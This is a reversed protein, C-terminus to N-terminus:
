EGDKLEEEQNQQKEKEQSQAVAVKDLIDKQRNLIDVINATDEQLVRQVETLDGLNVRGSNVADKIVQPNRRYDASDAYSNVSEPTIPYDVEVYVEKIGDDVTKQQLEGYKKVAVGDASVRSPYRVYCEAQILSFNVRACKEKKM